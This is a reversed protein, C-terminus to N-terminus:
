PQDGYVGTYRPLKKRELCFPQCASVVKEGLFGDAWGRGEGLGDWGVGASSRCDKPLWLGLEECWRLM